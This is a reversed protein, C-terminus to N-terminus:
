PTSGYQSTQLPASLERGLPWLIPWRSALLLAQHKSHIKNDTNKQFKNILMKETTKSIASIQEFSKWFLKLYLFFNYEVLIQKQAEM